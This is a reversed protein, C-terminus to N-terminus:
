IKKMRTLFATLNSFRYIRSFDLITRPKNWTIYSNYLLLLSLFLMLIRSFWYWDFFIFLFENSTIPVGSKVAFFNVIDTVPCGNYVAQIFAVMAMYMSSYPAYKVLFFRVVSFGFLIFVTTHFLNLLNYIVFYIQQELM